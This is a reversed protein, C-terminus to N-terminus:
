LYQALTLSKVGAILRYSAQLQTQLLLVDGKSALCGGLALAGLPVYRAVRTM